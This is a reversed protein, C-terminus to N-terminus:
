PWRTHVTYTNAATHYHVWLIGCRRAASTDPTSAHNFGCHWVARANGRQSVSGLRHREPSHSHRTPRLAGRSRSSHPPACKAINCMAFCTFPSSFSFCPFFSNWLFDSLFFLWIIYWQSTSIQNIACAFLEVHDRMQYLILPSFFGLGLAVHFILRYRKHILVDNVVVYPSLVINVATYSVLILAITIFLTCICM